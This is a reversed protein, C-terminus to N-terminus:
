EKAQYRGRHAEPIRDIAIVYSQRSLKRNCVAQNSLMRGMTRPTTNFVKAWRQVSDPTSWGGPPPPEKGGETKKSTARLLEVGLEIEAVAGSDFIFVEGEPVVLATQPNGWPSGALAESLGRVGRGLYNVGDTRESSGVFFCPGPFLAGLSRELNQLAVITSGLLTFFSPRARGGKEVFAQYRNHATLLGEAASLAPALDIGDVDVTIARGDPGFPSAAALRGAITALRDFDADTQSNARRAIKRRSAV